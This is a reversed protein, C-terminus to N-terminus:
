MGGVMKGALFEAEKDIHPTTSKKLNSIESENKMILEKANEGTEKEANELATIKLKEAQSDADKMIKLANVRAEKIIDAAKEKAKLIIQEAKKEAEKIEVLTSDEAMNVGKIFDLLAKQV